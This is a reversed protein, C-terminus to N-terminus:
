PSAAALDVVTQLEPQSFPVYGVPWPATLQCLMRMHSPVSDDNVHEVVVTPESGNLDRLEHVHEVLYDPIWGLHRGDRVRVIVARANYRNLRDEDLVLQDGERVSSALEPAGEVHRIGRVFFLARTSGTSTREPGAFVEIRDTARRGGSRALVEFPDAGQVLDVRQALVDYEPRSRPMVRNAFVPFLRDSDYRQHLDPLGPLPEFGDLTEAIKLYAFSYHEGHPGVRLVLRGVPHISGSAPNRWSAFLSREQLGDVQNM